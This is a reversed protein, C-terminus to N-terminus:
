WAWTDIKVQLAHVNPLPKQGKDISIAGLVISTIHPTQSLTQKCVFAQQTHSLDEHFLKMKRSFGLEGLTDQRRQRLLM